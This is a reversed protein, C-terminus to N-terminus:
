DSESDSDSDPEDLSTGLAQLRKARNANVKDSTIGSLLSQKIYTASDFSSVTIRPNQFYVACNSPPLILILILRFHLTLTLEKVEM